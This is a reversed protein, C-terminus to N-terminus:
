AGASVGVTAVGVEEGRTLILDGVELELEPELGVRPYIEDFIDCLLPLSHVSPLLWRLPEVSSQQTACRSQLSANQRSGFQKEMLAARGGESQLAGLDDIFTSHKQMAGCAPRRASM